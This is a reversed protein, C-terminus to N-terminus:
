GLAFVAGFMAGISAKAIRGVVAEVRGHEGSL